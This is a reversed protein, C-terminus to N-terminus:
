AFEDRQNKEIVLAICEFYQARPAALWVQVPVTDSSISKSDVTDAMGGYRCVYLHCVGSKVLNVLRTIARLVLLKSM